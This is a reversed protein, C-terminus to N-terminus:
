CRELDEPLAPIGDAGSALPRTWLAAATPLPAHLHPFLDGDRAVEWRLAPGLDAAEFAVLLLDSAGAFHKAVTGALQHAASLHIFGDRRDAASGTLFGIRCAEAWARETAIKFVTRREASGRPTMLM